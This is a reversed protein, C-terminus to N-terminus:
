NTRVDWVTISHFILTRQNSKVSEHPPGGGGLISPPWYQLISIVHNGQELFAYVSVIQGIQDIEAGFVQKGNSFITNKGDIYGAIPSLDGPPISSLKVNILYHKSESIDFCAQIMGNAQTWEHLPMESFIEFPPIGEEDWSYKHEWENHTEEKEFPIINVPKSRFKIQNM